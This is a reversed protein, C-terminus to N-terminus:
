EATACGSSSGCGGCGGGGDVPNVSEVTFGMYGVNVTLAGTTELLKKDICFTYGQETVVTDSDKPGDLAM